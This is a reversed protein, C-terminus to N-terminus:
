PFALAEQSYPLLGSMSHGQGPVISLQFHSELGNAEAFTAMDQVWNRAITFRNKGKQGPILDAPLEATDGLGVIVTQTAVNKFNYFTPFSDPEMVSFFLVVVALGIFPALLAALRRARGATDPSASDTM